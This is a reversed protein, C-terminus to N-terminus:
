GGCRCDEVEVWVLRIEGGLFKGVVDGVVDGFWVGGGWRVTIM